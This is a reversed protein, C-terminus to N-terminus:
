NVFEKILLGSLLVIVAGASALLYKLFELEKNRQALEWQTNIIKEGLVASYDDEAEINKKVVDDFSRPQLRLGSATKVLIGTVSVTEGAKFHKPNIGTNQKVYIRIEETSDDLYVTSSKQEVVEGSVSILSGLHEDSVQDCNLEIIELEKNKSLVVIDEKTKIKLRKEGNVESLEGLVEIYDGIELDPFDKYYSYVQLGPSGIIYFYQSGFVGPKVAVAGQTIILDGSEYKDLELLDIKAYEKIKEQDNKKVASTNTKAGSVKPAEYALSGSVAVINEAGLTIQTTWYFNGDQGRAFSEGEPAKGYETEALLEGAPNFLRVQDGTNNLALGSESRELVYFGGAEIWLDSKFKYPRSGGEEDDVTWNLLNIKEDGINKLEIFEGELDNGIPNPLFENIILRGGSFESGIAFSASDGKLENTESSFINITKEKSIEHEGDSVTLKVSYLGPERYGHEPNNLNLIVGDGFDWKFVLVDEDPDFTDSSDFFISTNVPAKEPCSFDVVPPHNIKKIINEQGPTPVETWFYFLQLVSNNSLPDTKNIDWAYSWGEIAKDYKLKQFPTNGMPRYLMIEDGNNNLAIKSEERKIFFYEKSKIFLDTKFEYKRQSLDGLKWGKLNVSRDGKNFLEIFEDKSDDGVPDPFIESIVIDQSYDYQAREEPIAEEESELSTIVNPAGKTPTTTILFDEKNNFTNFGDFKRAVSYPDGTVPANSGGSNWNGYVVQDILIKDSSFLKIIDGKNNLNGKPKELIFYKGPGSRAIIGQLYTKAGSGEEIYWGTLDVDRDFFTNYLEIWEVEGDSPDSVFENILINGSKFKYDSEGLDGLYVPSDDAEGSFDGEIRCLSSCGDNNELNGDDCEENKELIGNGCVPVTGSNEPDPNSSLDGVTILNKINEFTAPGIGSVKVIDEIVLFPGNAQRYDIIAQAKAPGIGPLTDLEALGATNINIKEGAQVGSFVFFVTFFTTFFFLSLFGKKSKKTM